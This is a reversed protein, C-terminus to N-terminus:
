LKHGCHTCFQVKRSKQPTDKGCAQCQALNYMPLGDSQTFEAYDLQFGCGACYKSELNNKVGCQCVIGKNPMNPVKANVALSLLAGCSFCEKAYISNYAGCTCVMRQRVIPPTSKKPKSDEQPTDVIIAGVNIAPQAFDSADAKQAPEKFTANCSCCVWQIKKNGHFGALAGIGGFAFIGFIGKKVSYGREQPIIDTSFCKPCCKVSM